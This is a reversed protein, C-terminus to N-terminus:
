NPAIVDCALIRGVADGLPIQEGQAIPSLEPAVLALAEDVTPLTGDLCPLSITM